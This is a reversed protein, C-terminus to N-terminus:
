DVDVKVKDKGPEEKPARRLKDVGCGISDVVGDFLAGFSTKTEELANGVHTRFDKPLLSALARGTEEVARVQHHVFADLPSREVKESPKEAQSKAKVM